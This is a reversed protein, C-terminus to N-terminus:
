VGWFFWIATTVVVTLLLQLPAGVRVYDMFRYGGPEYVMLNTQYGVPTLFTATAGFTVAIVFAFANAQLQVAVDVAIPILLVVAANNGVLNALGATVLYFLAVVAVAPLGQGLAYVVDGIVAAGGSRQLAIGLPIMGAILFIVNWSVAAYAEDPELVGFGVMLVVGALAAIAISFLELAAAAVVGGMVLIAVLQKDERYQEGGTQSQDVYGETAVTEIVFSPSERLADLHESGVRLLLSDGADLVVDEFRRTTLADGREVGLITAEYQQRFRLDAVSSGVVSSGDPVTVEVLTGTGDALDFGLEEIHVWPLYWLDLTAAATRITGRDGRISLVDGAELEFGPGPVAHRGDYRIVELVDLDSDTDLDAFAEGITAGAIPSTERVYLRSVHGTLNFDGLLDVTPRVREPLLRHGITGLYVLGVVLGIIGLHTFEFMSFPRGLLRDSFSSALLNSSTGVLTLTGGLVAAYSIPLLLKSPSMRYEDALNMVMPIFVAVIPTNNVIGAFGGTISTTTWRLRDTDGAAFKSIRDGLVRVLGTRHIGESLMYMAAVTITAVNAFGSVATETGVGTWPELAVLAVIVTIATVDPSFYETAFLVIAAFLLLFVITADTSIASVVM